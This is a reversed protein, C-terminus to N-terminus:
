PTRAEPGAAPPRGQLAKQALDAAASGPAAKVTMEWVRRATAIDGSAAAINGQEFMVDPNSPALVSARAIDRAARGMDAQRRALAASLMWAVPDDRHLALARDLDARAAALDAREAHARARDILLAATRQPAFDGAAAIARDFHAVAGGADGALFAANGAQGLFDAALPSKAALASDAAAALTRAGDAFREQRLQALAECHWAPLGGGRARWEAGFQEAKRADTDIARVCGEYRKRDLAPDLPPEAPQAIAPTALAAVLFLRM